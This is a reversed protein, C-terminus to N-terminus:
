KIEHLLIAFIVRNLKVAYKIVVLKDEINYEYQAKYSNAPLLFVVHDTLFNWQLGRLNVKPFGAYSTM